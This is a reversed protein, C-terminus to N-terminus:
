ATTPIVDFCSGCHLRRSRRCCTSASIPPASRMPKRLRHLVAAGRLTLGRRLVHFGPAIRALAFVAGEAAGAGKTLGDPDRKLRAVGIRRGVEFTILMGVFLATTLLMAIWTLNM